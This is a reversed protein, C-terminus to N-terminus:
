FRKSSENDLNQKRKSCISTSWRNGLICSTLFAASCYWRRIISQVRGVRAMWWWCCCCCTVVVCSDILESRHSNIWSEVVIPFQSLCLPELETDTVPGFSPNGHSSKGDRKRQTKKFGYLSRSLSLYHVPWAALRISTLPLSWPSYTFSSTPPPVWGKIKQNRADLKPRRTNESTETRFNM